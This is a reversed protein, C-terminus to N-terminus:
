AAPPPSGGRQRRRTSINHIRLDSRSRMHSQDSTDHFQHFRFGRLTNRFFKANPIEALAPSLLTSEQQGAGLRHREGPVIIPRLVPMCLPSQFFVVGDRFDLKDPPADTLTMRYNNDAGSESTMELEATIHHTVKAGFHLLSDRGGSRGIFEQLRGNMEFYLLKFFSLFNSKGSGNAGILVNLNELKLDRCQRISKYGDLSIKNLKLM